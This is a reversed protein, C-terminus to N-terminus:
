EPRGLVELQRAECANWRVLDRPWREACTDRIQRKAPNNMQRIWLGRHAERQQFICWEDRSTRDIRTTGLLTPGPCAAQILDTLAHGSPLRIPPEPRNPQPRIRNQAPSSVAPTAQQQSATAPETPTATVVVPIATTLATAMAQAADTLNRHIDASPVTIQTGSKLTITVSDPLPGPSESRVELILYTQAIASPAVIALVLLLAVATLTKIM